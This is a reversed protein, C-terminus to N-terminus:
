ELKSNPGLKNLYEKFDIPHYDMVLYITDEEEDTGFNDSIFIDLLKVTVKNQPM